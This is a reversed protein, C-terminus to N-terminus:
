AGAGGEQARAKAAAREARWADMMRAPEPGAWSAAFADIGAAVAEALPLREWRNILAKQDRVAQPGNALLSRLWADVVDDLGERPVVKEVLGMSLAEGADILDGLMLLQRTRGWGILGPLLAAEVVSPIGLRVEPMGMRADEVAVRFDCAAMMELGAGLTLGNIRGIVPVPAERLCACCRHVRTIFARASAPELGAMEHIDAGGVFIAEHGSVVIARVTARAGAAEVMSVFRTMLASSLANAREPRVISVRAVEGTAGNGAGPDPWSEITLRVGDASEEHVITM